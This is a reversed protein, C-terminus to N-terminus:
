PVFTPRSQSVSADGVGEGGAPWPRYEVVAQAPGSLVSTGGFCKTMVVLADGGPGGKGQLINTGSADKLQQGLTSQNPLPTSSIPISVVHGQQPATNFAAVLAADTNTTGAIFDGGVANITGIAVRGVQGSAGSFPRVQPCNALAIEETEYAQIAGNVIVGLNNSTDVLLLFVGWFGDLVTFDLGGFGQFQSPINVIVDSDDRRKWFEDVEFTLATAPLMRPSGVAAAREVAQASVTLVADALSSVFTSLDSLRWNYRPVTAYIPEDQDVGFAPVILPVTVAKRLAQADRHINRDQLMIIRRKKLAL